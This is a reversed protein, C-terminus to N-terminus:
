RARAPRRAMPDDDGGVDAGQLLGPQGPLDAGVADAEEAGFEEVQAAGGEGILLLLVM